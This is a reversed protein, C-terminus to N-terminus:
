KLVIIEEELEDIAAMFSFPQASRLTGNSQGAIAAGAM